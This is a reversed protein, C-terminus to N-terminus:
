VFQTFGRVRGQVPKSPPQWTALRNMDFPAEAPLPQDSFDYEGHLNLHRYSLVAFPSLTALTAAQQEPPLRAL